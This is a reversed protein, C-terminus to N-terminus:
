SKDRVKPIRITYTTGKGPESEVEITGRHKEIVKNATFLGLSTAETGKSSFFLSFMKERTEQDMGIGNDAIEFIANDGDSSQRFSVFHSNKETDVRCSEFAGLLINHLSEKLSKADAECTGLDDGLEVRFDIGLDAARKQLKEVVAGAIGQLRVPEFKSEDQGAISLLDLVVQRIHAVNRRVMKRGEEVRDPKGKDLGTNLLYLGGDLGTLLGKLGHSISGVLLGLNTLQDQLERIQTINTSMEMVMDIEGDSNFIPATSVLTNIREGSLSTVVEESNHAEGDRFTAEVPCKLCPEDRHKYVEFCNAGPYDGFDEKFRRNSQVVHLHKDQLSIYCPAEKFLLRFRERSQRLKAELRKVATIDASVEVVAEVKGEPGKVPSTYAMIPIKKGDPLTVLQESSHKQGDAFTQEVPCDPCVSNRRKYVAYCHRGAADGFTSVFNENAAIINFDRGQVSIFCPSERFMREFGVPIKALNNDGASM